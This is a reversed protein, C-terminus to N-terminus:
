QLERMAALFLVGLLDSIAFGRFFGYPLVYYAAGAAAEGGALRQLCQVEPEDDDAAAPAAPGGAGAAAPWWPWFGRACAGPPVHPGRARMAPLCGAGLRSGAWGDGLAAASAAVGAMDWRVPSARACALAVGRALEARESLLESAVTACCGAPPPPTASCRPALGAACLAGWAAAAASHAAGGRAPGENPARPAPEALPRAGLELSLPQEGDWGCNWRESGPQLPMAPEAGCPGDQPLEFAGRPSLPEGLPEAQWRGDRGDLLAWNDCGQEPQEGLLGSVHAPEWGPERRASGLGDGAQWDQAPQLAGAAEGAAWEEAELGAAGERCTDREWIAAAMALAAVGCDYGATASSRVPALQLLSSALSARAAGPAFAASRPLPRADVASALLQPALAFPLALLFARGTHFLAVPALALASAAAREWFHTHAYRVLMAEEQIHAFAYVMPTLALLPAMRSRTLAVISMGSAVGGLAGALSDVARCDAHTLARTRELAHPFTAVYIPVAAAGQAACLALRRWTAAASLRGFCIGLAAGSVAGKVLTQREETGM